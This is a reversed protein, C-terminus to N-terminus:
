FLLKLALQIQRSGGASTIVGFGSVATVTTGPSAWTPHNFANFWETRFQVTFGERVRFNKFLSADLGHSAPARLNPSTRSTNGFTFIPAQTFAAPDFYANLRQDIEGTKKGSQGNNNPRQGPSGLNTNNGGNSIQFPLGSQLAAIGNVQWGGLAWDVVAPASSLFKRGKGFPLEYNASIVLRSSVDQASISREAKRNYFDQKQGAAGLFTVTQSADDILKGGTYSVLLNVGNSYRKEVRLTFAHYLSNAQPKRFANVSTYQPYGRLLQSRLVTPQYLSSTTNAIYPRFPNPVSQTLQTGLAFFSAPLQNYTMSSEGDILHNGKSGLYGVEVVFGRGLERQLTANWEQIVPNRYDIFFSDSIGLGLQTSPGSIPTDNAGLPLNFGSPFPNKLYAAVTRFNDFTANLATSSQFGQTGSSGSTGAAQMVSGSYLIGYASRFVTQPTIQYAFGFRPGWNNLDTPTQRRNQPTVFKMAGTLNQYGPVRGAIPSPADLDFYSLRNYRETRPIDTDWRLGMNLTLKQTVKWDDQLFLGWYSSATAASFTHSIQGGNPLGLVMSAFGNGQTSSISAGAVRQTWAASNFDYQGSPQGHQTFNLFLKRYEMGFKLTHKSFVKTVDSRVDHGYSQIRLTTFTAQGLGTVLTNGGMGISPFELNQNIAANYVAQPFGLTRIDLNNSFPDRHYVRRAFGWNLSMITTPNLTYVTNLAINYNTGFSPGDGSSTGINGLGNFPVAPNDSYSGRTWLRLHDTFNHDLRSDFRNDNNRAKGTNYFNQQHTYPNTPSANPRPWYPLLNLAVPDMRDRPIRNGAFPQRIWQGSADAGANLPDYITILQGSGNRLDSFDGIRWADIPVTPNTTALNRQRTSEEAFFFFTRNRGDYLKPIYVPGGIVGGFQNRQFWALKVGNRNNNWTNADLKSNRLFEFVSGHLANTGSRTAVTIVGGGTRGLEAAMSNTIVTVEEVSDLIPRYGTENISVNNEPLIVSTGDITIESSANRGGSIWPTSGGGPIVGPVSNALAYANRGNLPLDLMAKNTIVTAVSSTATSLHVMGATVEVATTVEGVKLPIELAITQQVSLRVGETLYKQFGAKEVTLRYEGPLLYPQLFFGEVNTALGQRVGTRQNEVTIKAEPVVAGTGDTVRGQIVGTATQAAASVCLVVAATVIILSRFM